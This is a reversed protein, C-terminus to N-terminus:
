PRCGVYAVKTEAWRLAHLIDRIHGRRGEHWCETAIVHAGRTGRLTHDDRIYEYDLPGLEYRRAIHQAERYNRTLLYIRKM